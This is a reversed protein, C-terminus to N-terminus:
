KEKKLNLQSIEIGDKKGIEYAHIISLAIHQPLVIETDKSSSIFAKETPTAKCWSNVCKILYITGQAVATTILATGITNLVQGQVDTPDFFHVVKPSLKRSQQPEEDHCTVVITMMM